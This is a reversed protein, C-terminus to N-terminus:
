LQFRLFAGVGGARELLGPDEVFTVQAGTNTARTVLEDAVVLKSTDTSPGQTDVATAAAAAKLTGVGKPVRLADPVSTILLEDVQGLELAKLTAEPGVVALGGAQYADFMEAVRDADTQADHGRLARLTADLVQTEPASRDLKIVDVVMGALEPSLHQKLLPVAVEDGVVVIRSLREAATLRALADVVEKVHAAQLNGTRRQYRAQSWGGAQSRRPKDTTVTSAETRTNLGFVFIRTRHTELMVAAYRPYQDVLRVLPYLHPVPGVFLQHPGVATDLAIAEFLGAPECAFLALGNSSPQLDERLYRQIRAVDQELSERAASRLPLPALREAVAKRLFPAYEDRGRDNPSLDLYLSLVPSPSPEFAALRDIRADL